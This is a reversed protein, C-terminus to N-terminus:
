PAIKSNISGSDIFVSATNATYKKGKQSVLINIISNRLTKNSVRRMAHFKLDKLTLNKIKKLLTKM